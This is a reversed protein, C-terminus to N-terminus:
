IYIYTLFYYFLFILNGSVFGKNNEFYISKTIHILNNVLDIDKITLALAEGRRMGTHKLVEVFARERLPLKAQEVVSLIEDSLARDDIRSVKHIKPLTLSLDFNILRNVYAERFIQRLTLRCIDATRILDKELLDNIINQLQNPSIENILIKGICPKIHSEIANTYMELTKYEVNSKYTHLWNDCWQSVTLIPMTKGDNQTVM